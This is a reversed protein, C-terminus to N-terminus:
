NSANANNYVNAYFSKQPVKVTEWQDGVRYKVTEGPFIIQSVVLDQHIQEHLAGDIKDKPIDKGFWYAQTPVSSLRPIDGAYRSVDMGGEVSRM